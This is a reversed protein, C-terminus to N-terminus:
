KKKHCSGYMSCGQCGGGCSLKGERKDKVMKIIVGAVAALLVICVIITSLNVRIWSLM